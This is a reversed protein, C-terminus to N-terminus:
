DVKKYVTIAADPCVVACNQCAICKEEEALYAYHLGYNNTDNTNMELCDTPCSAICLACGKCGEVSIEVYGKAAM